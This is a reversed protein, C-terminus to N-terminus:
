WDPIVETLRNTAASKFPYVNNRNQLHGRSGLCIDCFFCNVEMIVTAERSNLLLFAILRCESSAHRRGDVHYSSELGDKAAPSRGTFGRRLGPGFADAGILSSLGYQWGDMAAQPRSAFARHM